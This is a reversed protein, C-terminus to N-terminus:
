TDFEGTHEKVQLRLYGIFGYSKCIILPVNATWLQRALDCTVRPDLPPLFCVSINSCKESYCTTRFSKELKKDPVRICLSYIHGHFFFVRSNPHYRRPIMVCSFIGSNWFHRGNVRELCKNM